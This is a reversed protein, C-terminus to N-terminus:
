SGLLGKCAHKCVDGKLEVRHMLFKRIKTMNGKESTAKLEVRHM